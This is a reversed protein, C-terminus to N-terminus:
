RSRCAGLQVVHTASEAPAGAKNDGSTRWAAATERARPLMTPARCYSQWRTLAKHHPSNPGYDSRAGGDADAASTTRATGQIVTPAPGGRRLAPGGRKGKDRAEGHVLLYPM